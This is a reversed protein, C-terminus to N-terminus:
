GRGGTLQLFVEDLTPRRLSVDAIDIGAERLTGIVEVVTDPGADAIVVAGLEVDVSVVGLHELLPAVEDLRGPDVPEVM